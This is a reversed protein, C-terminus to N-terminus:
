AHLDHVRGVVCLLKPDRRDDRCITCLVTTEGKAVDAINGCRSCPRLEDHLTALEAGLDRAVEADATLLYLIYRQATKEGVGPLRSLLTVLKRIKPSQM